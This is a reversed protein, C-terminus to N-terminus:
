VVHFFGEGLPGIGEQGGVGAGGDGEDEAAAGAEGVM